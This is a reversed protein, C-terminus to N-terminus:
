SGVKVVWKWFMICACLDCIGLFFVCPFHLFCCSLSLAASLGILALSYEVEFLCNILRLSNLKELIFPRVSYFYLRNLWLKDIKCDLWDPTSSM